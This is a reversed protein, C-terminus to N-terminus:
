SQLVTPSLLILDLPQEFTVMLSLPSVVMNKLWNVFPVLKQLKRNAERPMSVRRFIPDARLFPPIQELLLLNNRILM